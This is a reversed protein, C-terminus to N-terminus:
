EDGGMFRQRAAQRTVGLVDGIQEWTSGQERAAAVLSREAQELMDMAGLVHALADAALPVRLVRTLNKRADIACARATQFDPVTTDVPIKLM